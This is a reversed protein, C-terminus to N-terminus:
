NQKIYTCVLAAIILLFIISALVLAIIMATNGSILSDSAVNTDSATGSVDTDSDPAQSTEDETTEPIPQGVLVFRGSRSVSFSFSTESTLPSYCGLESDYILFSSYKDTPLPSSVSYTIELDPQVANGRIDTFIFEFVDILAYGEGVFIASLEEATLLETINNGSFSMGYPFYTNPTNLAAAFDGSVFVSTLKAITNTEKHSCVSCVREESGESEGTPELLLIWEGFSHGLPELETVSLEDNCTNCYTKAQGPETCSPRIIIQAEGESHGLAPIESVTVDEGCIMCKTAMQGADTCTPAKVTVPDSEEGHGLAPVTHRSVIQQCVTCVTVQEGPETCSPTKTVTLPGETHVHSSSVLIEIEFYLMHGKYNLMMTKTGLTDTNFGKFTMGDTVTEVTGNNYTVIISTGAPDFIENEFYKLKTPYTGFKISKIEVDIVNVTFTAKQIYDRESYVVEITQAGVADIDGKVTVASTVDLKKGDAYYAYVKMGSLDLKEGMYYNLKTPKKDIKIELLAAEIVTIKYTATLDKYKVTVTKEGVTSSDFGTVTYGDKLVEGTGNSYIVSVSLGARDENDGLFYVLKQPKVIKLEVEDVVEVTLTTSVTTEPYTVTVTKKGTTSSDFGTCWDLKVISEVKSGSNSTLQLVAGSMDLKEGILYQMKIPETKFEMSTVKSPDITVPPLVEENAAVALSAALALCLLALALAFYKYIKRIM